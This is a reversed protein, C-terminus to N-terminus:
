KLNSAYWNALRSVATRYYGEDKEIGIFNRKTELCSIATTGSGLCNDLVTDNIQSYTRILYSFLEIPKQTPHLSKHNGNSFKIVSQPYRVGENDTIVEKNQGGYIKARKGAKKHSKYPKGPQMQPNYTPAKPSFILIDEHIRLPRRKANLFGTPMTKLWVLSYRFWKRNSNILDTTFSQVATLVVVGNPALVRKYAAWLQELPIQLDWKCATIGYPLDCLILNVSGDPIQEMVQLCDGHVVSNLKM